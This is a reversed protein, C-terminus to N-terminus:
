AAAAAPRLPRPEADVLRDYLARDTAGETNILFVRADAGLGVAARLEQAEAGRAGEGAV